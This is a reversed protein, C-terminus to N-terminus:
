KGKKKKNTICGTKGRRDSIVVLPFIQLLVQKFFLHFNSISFPIDRRSMVLRFFSYIVLFLLYQFLFLIHFFIYVSMGKRHATM